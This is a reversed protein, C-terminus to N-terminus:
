EDKPLSDAGEITNNSPCLIKAVDQGNDRTIGNSSSPEIAGSRQSAPTPVLCKRAYQSEQNVSYGIATSQSTALEELNGPARLSAPEELMNDLDSKSLFEPAKGSHFVVYRSDEPVNFVRTLAKPYAARMDVLQTSSTALHAAEFLLKSILCRVMDKSCGIVDQIVAETCGLAFLKECTAQYTMKEARKMRSKREFSM